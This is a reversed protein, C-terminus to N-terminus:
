GRDAEEELERARQKLADVEARYASRAFLKGRLFHHVDRFFGRWERWDGVARGVIIGVGFVVATQVSFWDDM